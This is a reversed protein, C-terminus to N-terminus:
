SHRAERGDDAPLLEALDDVVIDAGHRRLAEAQNARNVGIVLGFGGARGAQVGSQADEIVIAQSPTVGLRRSAELFADPSPKGSLHMREIEYGDVRVNLLQTLGVSEIIEQCHHSASVVATKLGSAKALHICRVTSPYVAVGATRIQVEFYRDKRNGFGYLTEQEPGDQPLGQPLVIGRSGLFSKVGEHRSRGDVYLHYDRDTDFPTFQTGAHEALKRLYEDFLRKWAAAHVDATQTIVGDLDFLVAAYRTMFLEASRNMFIVSTLELAMVRVM